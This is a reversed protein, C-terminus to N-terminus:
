QKKDGKVATKSSLSLILSLWFLLFPYFLSNLFFSHALLAALSLRLVPRIASLKWWVGIYRLYFVLGIIGTTAAVFLLSSDAGAGAHSKQWVLTELFGYDKQAYRYTNFGVGILPHDLFIKLSNQWNIIRAQISSTRELKVGEGGPARPLIILTVSLLLFIKVLINWSKTM